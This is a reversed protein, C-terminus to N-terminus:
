AVGSRLERGPKCSAKWGCSPRCTSITEPEDLLLLDPQQILARALLLRTHQGGSLTSARQAAEDPTFGM